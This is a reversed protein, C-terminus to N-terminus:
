SSNRIYILKAGTGHLRTNLLSRPKADKPRHTVGEQIKGGVLPTSTSFFFFKKILFSYDHKREEPFEVHLILYRNSVGQASIKLDIVTTIYNRKSTYESIMEVNHYNVQPFTAFTLEQLLDRKVSYYTEKSV